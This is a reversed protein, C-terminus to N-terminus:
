LAPWYRLSVSDPPSAQLGLRGSSLAGGISNREDAEVRRTDERAGDALYRSRSTRGRGVPAHPHISFPESSGISNAISGYADLSARPDLLDFGSSCPSAPTCSTWCTASKPRRRFRTQEM